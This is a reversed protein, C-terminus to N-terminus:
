GRAAVITGSEDALIGLGSGVLADRGGQGATVVVVRGLPAVVRASERIWRPGLQGDVAVGRLTRGFFPLGPRAAMRSVGPVDPWRSLAPDVAVVEVGTLTEAFHHAYRAVAGVLALTGPGEAVGVLAALREAEAPDAAGPDGARGLPLDERPPARLDGFGRRIPFGDRCNACGLTGDVVRRDEMRDALLILGFEPGCRPCTLRDTLLLHV